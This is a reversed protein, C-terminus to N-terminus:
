LRKWLLHEVSHQKTNGKKLNCNKRKEKLEHLLQKCRKANIGMGDM